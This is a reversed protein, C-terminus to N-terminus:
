TGSINGNYLIGGQRKENILTNVVQMKIMSALRRSEEQNMAGETASTVGGKNDINVTISINNTAAADGLNNEGVPQSIRESGVYGGKAFKNLRGANLDHFFKVGYKNVSDSSIVYEGGMLMAPINDRRAYLGTSGGFFNGIGQGFKNATTGYMQKGGGLLGAGHMAALAGTMILMTKWRKKKKRKWEGLQKQFEKVERLRNAHYDLLNSAKERRIKNRPNDDSELAMRSLRTDIEYRSGKLSPKDNEYIFANRLNFKAYNSSRNKQYEMLSNLNAQPDDSNPGPMTGSNLSNLFGLGYKSVASKRIVYEGQNLVAPVDDKVGSGGTILGGVTSLSSGGKQLGLVGAMGVLGGMNYGKIGQGTALGGQKGGAFMGAMPNFILRQIMMELLKQKAMDAIGEFLDSFAEKADKTGDILHTFAEVSKDKFTDGINVLAEHADREMMKSDYKWGAAIDSWTDGMTAKGARRRAKSRNRIGEVKEDEYLTTNKSELYARDEAQTVAENVKRHAVDLYEKVIGQLDGGLTEGRKNLFEKIDHIDVEKGELNGEYGLQRIHDAQQKSLGGTTEFQTAAAMSLASFDLGSAQAQLQPISLSQGALEPRALNLQGRLSKMRTPFGEEMVKTLDAASATPDNKILEIKKKYDSLAQQAAAIQDMGYAKLIAEKDLQEEGTKAAAEGAAVKLKQMADAMSQFQGGYTEIRGLTKLFGDTDDLMDQLKKKANEIDKIGLADLQALVKKGAADTELDGRSLVGGEFFQDQEKLGALTGAVKGRRGTLTDRLLKTRGFDVRRGDFIRGTYAKHALSDPAAGKAKGALFSAMPGEGFALDDRNIYRLLNADRRGSIRRRLTDQRMPMTAQRTAHRAWTQQLDGGFRMRDEIKMPLGTKPDLPAPADKLSALPDSGLGFVGQGPTIVPMKQRQFWAVKARQDKYNNAYNQGGGRAGWWTMGQQLINGVLSPGKPTASKQYGPGKGSYLDALSKGKGTHDRTYAYNYEKAIDNIWGIDGTWDVGAWPNVGAHTGSLGFGAMGGSKPTAGTGLGRFYDKIMEPTLTEGAQLKNMAWTHFREKEKKVETEIESEGETQYKLDPHREKLNRNYMAETKEVWDRERRWSDGSPVGQGTFAGIITGPQAQFEHKKNREWTWWSKDSDQDSFMKKMIKTSRQNGAARDNKVRERLKWGKAGNAVAQAFAYPSNYSLPDIGASKFLDYAEIAPRGAITAPSKGAAIEKWYGRWAVQRSVRARTRENVGHGYHINSAAGSWSEHGGGYELRNVLADINGNNKGFAFNKAKALDTRKRYAAKNQLFTQYTVGANPDFRGQGGGAGRLKEGGQAGQLWQTFTGDQIKSEIFAKVRQTNETSEKGAKPGIMTGTTPDWGAAFKPGLWEAVSNKGYAIKNLAAKRKKAFEASNTLEALRDIAQITKTFGDNNGRGLNHTATLQAGGYEAIPRSIHNGLNQFNTGLNGAIGQGMGRVSTDVVHLGDVTQRGAQNLAQVNSRAATGMIKQEDHSNLGAQVNGDWVGQEIAKGVKNANKGMQKQLHDSLKANVGITKAVHKASVSDSALLDNTQAVVDRNFDDTIKDLGTAQIAGIFANKNREELDAGQNAIIENMIKINENMEQIHEPMMDFKFQKAIQAIATEQAEDEAAKLQTFAADDQSVGSLTLQRRAEGIQMRIGETKGAIARSTLAGFAEPGLRTGGQGRLNMDNILVDLLEFSHRGMDLVGQKGERGGVTGSLRRGESPLVSNYLHEQLKNLRTAGATEGLTGRTIHGGPGGYASLKEEQRALREQLNNQANLLVTQRTNEDLIDMLAYQLKNTQQELQAVVVAASAQANKSGAKEFAAELDAQLNEPLTFEDPKDKISNLHAVMIPTLSAVVDQNQQIDKWIKNTEAQTVSGAISRELTAAADQVQKQTINFAANNAKVVAQRIKKVDDARIKALKLDSEVRTSEVRGMFPKGLQTGGKAYQQAMTLQFDFRANKMKNLQDVREKDIQMMTKMSANVTKTEKAIARLTEEYEKNIAVQIKRNAEMDARKVLEERNIKLNESLKKAADAADEENAALREFDEIYGEPVKMEKLVEKFRELEKADMHTGVQAAATFRALRERGEVGKLSDEGIERQLMQTYKQLNADGAKSGDFIRDEESMGLWGALGGTDFNTGLVANSLM